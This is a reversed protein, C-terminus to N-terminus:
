RKRGGQQPTIGARAQKFSRATNPPRPQQGVYELYVRAAADAVGASDAIVGKSADSDIRLLCGFGESAEIVLSGSTTAVACHSLSAVEVEGVGAAKRKGGGRADGGRVSHKCRAQLLKDSTVLVVSSAGHELWFVCDRVIADDASWRGGSFCEIVSPTNDASRPLLRASQLGAHGGDRVVVVARTSCLANGGGAWSAVSRSFAKADPWGMTARVNSADILIVSPLVVLPAGTASTGATEM